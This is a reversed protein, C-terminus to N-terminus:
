QKFVRARVTGAGLTQTSGTNNTLVVTVTNASSVYASISCGQIDLSFSPMAIDGLAAGSATLTTSARSGTTIAGPTWSASGQLKVTGFETFSPASYAVAAGSVTADASSDITAVLGVLNTIQKRGTVGVITIYNGVSVGTTTNLTLSTTGSTISGTVSSLTGATGTNLCV